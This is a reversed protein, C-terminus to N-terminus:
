SRSLGAAVQNMFRLFDNRKALYLLSAVMVVAILPVFTYRLIKALRKIVPSAGNYDILMMVLGILVTIPLATVIVIVNKILTKRAIARRDEMKMFDAENSSVISLTKVNVIRGTVSFDNDNLARGNSEVVMEIDVIDNPNLLGSSLTLMNTGNVSANLLSDPSAKFDLIHIDSPLHITINEVYDNPTIPRTGDNELKFKLYRLSKIPERHYFIEVQENKIGGSINIPELNSVLGLKLSTIEPSVPFRWALFALVLALLILFIQM